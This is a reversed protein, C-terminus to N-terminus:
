LHLFQAPLSQPVFSPKVDVGPPTSPDCRTRNRRRPGTNQQLFRVTHKPKPCFRRNLNVGLPAGCTNFTKMTGTHDSYFGVPRIRQLCFRDWHFSDDPLRPKLSEGPHSCSDM